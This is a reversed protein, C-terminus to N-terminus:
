VLVAIMSGHMADSAPVAFCLCYAGHVGPVLQLQHQAATLVLLYLWESGLQGAWADESCLLECLFAWVHDAPGTHVQMRLIVISALILITWSWWDSHCM